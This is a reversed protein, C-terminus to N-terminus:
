GKIDSSPSRPHSLISTVRITDKEHVYLVPETHDESEGGFGKIWQLAAPDFPEGHLPLNLTTGLLAGKHAMVSHVEDPYQTGIDWNYPPYERGIPYAQWTPFYPGSFYLGPGPHVGQSTHIQGFSTWNERQTGEYNQDELQVRLGEDVWADNAVSYAEWEARDAERVLPYDSVVMANTLSKLKAARVAFRKTTVFPFTQNSAEALNVQDVSFSDVVGLTFDLNSAVAELVKRSDEEFQQEFHRIEDQDTYRYVFCAVGITCFALVALIAIRSYQVAKKLQLGTIAKDYERSDEYASTISENLFNGEQSSAASEQQMFLPMERVRAKRQPPAGPMSPATSRGTSPKTSSFRLM